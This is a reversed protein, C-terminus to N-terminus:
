TRCNEGLVEVFGRYNLNVIGGWGHGELIFADEKDAGCGADAFGEAVAEHAFAGIDDGDATSLFVELGEDVSM